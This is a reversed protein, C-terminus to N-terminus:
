TSAFPEDVVAASTKELDVAEAIAANDFLKNVAFLAMWRGEFSLWDVESAADIREVGHPIQANFYIVDGCDAIDDLVIRDGNEREIYAGGEQFDLRKTSMLMTPVTLQHYDVPDSHKNLGGIGKPYFQFALRATCGDEPTMGLFKNKPLSSLLNKLEYISRFLRFFGFVDENWPFFVFQHFCGKVYARPDWNNIRHFNPCGVDIRAYNPISNKGVQALYRRIAHLKEKALVNRFIYTDGREINERMEEIRDASTWTGPLDDLYYTNRAFIRGVTRKAEKRTTLLETM